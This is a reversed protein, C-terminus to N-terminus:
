EPRNEGSVCLNNEKFLPFPTRLAQGSTTQSRQSNRAPAALVHYKRPAASSLRAKPTSTNDTKATEKLFLFSFITNVIYILYKKPSHLLRSRATHRQPRSHPHLPWTDKVVPWQCRHLAVNDSTLSNLCNETIM